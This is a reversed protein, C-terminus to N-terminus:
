IQIEMQCSLRTSESSSDISTRFTDTKQECAHDEMNKRYKKFDGHNTTDQYTKVIM